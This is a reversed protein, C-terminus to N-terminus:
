MPIPADCPPGCPLSMLCLSTSLSLHLSSVGTHATWPHTLDSQNLRLQQRGTEPGWRPVMAEIGTQCFNETVGDACMGAGRSGWRPGGAGHCTVWLLPPPDADPIVGAVGRLRQSACRSGSPSVGVAWLASPHQATRKTEGGCLFPCHTQPGCPIPRRLPCAELSCGILHNNGEILLVQQLVGAQLLRPRGCTGVM